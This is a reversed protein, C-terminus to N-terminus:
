LLFLNMAILSLELMTSLLLCVTVNRAIILYKINFVIGNLMELNILDPRMFIRGSKRIAGTPFSDEADFIRKCPPKGASARMALQEKFGEALKLPTTRPVGDAIERHYHRGNIWLCDVVPVGLLESYLHHGAGELGVSLVFLPLKSPEASWGCAAHQAICTTDLSQGYISKMARFYNQYSASNKVSADCNTILKRSTPHASQNFVNWPEALIVIVLSLYLAVQMMM